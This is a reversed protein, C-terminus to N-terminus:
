QPLRVRYLVPVYTVNLGSTSWNLWSDREEMETFYAARGDFTMPSHNPPLYAVQRVRDADGPDLRCFTHRPIGSKQIDDRVFYLYRGDSALRGINGGTEDPEARLHVRRDGGDPRASILEQRHPMLSTEQIWYLRGKLDVVPFDGLFDRLVTPRAAGPVHRYIDSRVDPWPRPVTLLVTQANTTVSGRPTLNQALCVPTGGEVPASLLDSRAAVVLQPRFGYQVSVTGAPRDCIWYIRDKVIAARRRREGQGGDMRDVPWPYERVPGGDLPMRRVRGRLRQPIEAPVLMDPRVSTFWPRGSFHLGALMDAPLTESRNVLYYVGTRNVGIPRFDADPATDRGVEVAEGSSLPRRRVVLTGPTRMDFWYVNDAYVVRGYGGRLDGIREPRDRLYWWRLILFTLPLTLLLWRCQRIDDHLRQM